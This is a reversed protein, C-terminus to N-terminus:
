FFLSLLGLYILATLVVLYLVFMNNESILSFNGELTIQHILNFYQKQM